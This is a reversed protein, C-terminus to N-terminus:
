DRRLSAGAYPDYDAPPLDDRPTEAVPPAQMPPATQNAGETLSLFAGAIMPAGLLIFCGLVIHLGRRIPFRGTLM